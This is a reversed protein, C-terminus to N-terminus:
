AAHQSPCGPEDLSDLIARIQGEIHGQQRESLKSYEHRKVTQMPWDNAQYHRTPEAAKYTNSPQRTEYSKSTFDGPDLMNGVGTALWFHNVQLLQAAIACNEANLSKTRGDLAKDVAVRSVGLKKILAAKDIKSHDIAAQLRERFEVMTAITEGDMLVMTQTNAFSHNLKPM